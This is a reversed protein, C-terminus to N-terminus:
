RHRVPSWSRERQACEAGNVSGDRGLLRECQVQPTMVMLNERHRKQVRLVACDHHALHKVAGTVCVLTYGRSITRWESSSLAPAITLRGNGRTAQAGQARDYRAAHNRAAARSPGGRSVYGTLVLSTLSTHADRVKSGLM